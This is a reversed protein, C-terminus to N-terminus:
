FKIMKHIKNQIKSSYTHQQRGYPQVRPQLLQGVAVQHAGGVAVHHAAEAGLHGATAVAAFLMQLAAVKGGVAGVATLGAALNEVGEVRELAM